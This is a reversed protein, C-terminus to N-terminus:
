CLRLLLKLKIIITINKFIEDFVQVTIMLISIRQLDHTSLLTFFCNEVLQQITKNIKYKM